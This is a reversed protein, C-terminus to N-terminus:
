NSENHDGKAEDLAQQVIKIDVKFMDLHTQLEEPIGEGNINGWRDPTLGAIRECARVLIPVAAILYANRKANEGTQM